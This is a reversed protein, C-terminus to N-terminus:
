LFRHAKHPTSTPEPSPSSSAEPTASPIETPTATPSETPTASPMTTPKPTPLPAGAVTFSPAFLPPTSLLEARITILGPGANLYDPWFGAFSKAENGAFMLTSKSEQARISHISDWLTHGNRVAVFAVRASTAFNVSLPAGTVNVVTASLHLGDGAPSAAAALVLQSAIPSPSVSIAPLGLSIQAHARDYHVGFGATLALTRLPVYFRDARVFAPAPLMIPVMDLLATKMGTTFILHKNNIAIEAGTATHYILTGGLARSFDVLDVSVVGHRNLAYEGQADIPRGDINVSWVPPLAAAHAQPGGITFGALLALAGSMAILKNRM